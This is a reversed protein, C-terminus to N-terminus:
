RGALEAFREYWAHAQPLRAHAEVTPRVADQLPQRDASPRAAMRADQRRDQQNLWKITHFITTREDDSLPAAELALGHHDAFRDVVEWYRETVQEFTAVTVDQRLKWVGAHFREYAWLCLGPSLDPVGVLQSTVAQLPPRVVVLTPVGLAVARGVQGPSHHHSAVELSPNWHRLAVTAFTNGSRPYGEVCVDSDETVRTTRLEPQVWSLPEVLRHSGLVNRGLYRGRSVLRM